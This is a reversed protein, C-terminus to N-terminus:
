FSKPLRIVIMSFIETEPHCFVNKFETRGLNLPYFSGGKEINDQPSSVESEERKGSAGGPLLIRTKFPM